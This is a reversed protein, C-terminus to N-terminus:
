GPVYKESLSSLIQVLESIIAEIASYLGTTPDKLGEGRRQVQLEAKNVQISTVLGELTGARSQGVLGDVGELLLTITSKETSDPLSSLEQGQFQTEWDRHALSVLM